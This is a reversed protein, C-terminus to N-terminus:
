NVQSTKEKKKVVPLQIKLLGRCQAWCLTNFFFHYRESLCCAKIWPQQPSSFEGNRPLRNWDSKM